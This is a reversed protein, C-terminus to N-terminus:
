KHWYLLVFPTILWWFFTAESAFLNRVPSSITVLENLPVVHFSFLVLLITAATALFIKKGFSEFKNERFPEPMLRSTVLTGVVTAALFISISLWINTANADYSFPAVYTFLLGFYLGFILNIIQQRGRIITYLLSLFFVGIVFAGEYLVLLLIGWDM